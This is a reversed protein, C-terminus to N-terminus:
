DIWDEKNRRTARELESRIVSRTMGANKRHAHVREKEELEAHRKSLLRSLYLLVVFWIAALWATEPADKKFGLVAGIVTGYFASHSVLESLWHVDSASHMMTHLRHRIKPVIEITFGLIACFIGPALVVLIAIVNKTM